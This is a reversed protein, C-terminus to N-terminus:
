AGETAEASSEGHRRRLFAEALAVLGYGHPIYHCKERVNYLGETVAHPAYKSLVWAFDLSNEALRRRVRDIDGLGQKHQVPIWEFSALGFAERIAEAREERREGGILVAQLGNTLARAKIVSPHAREPLPADIPTTVDEAATETSPDETEPSATLEEIRRRLHRLERGLVLDKHDTLLRALVDEHLANGKAASWASAVLTRMTADADSTAETRSELLERLSGYAADFKEIGEARTSCAAPRITTAGRVELQKAIELDLRAIEATWYLDSKDSNWDQALGDLYESSVDDKTARLKGFVNGHLRQAESRSLDSAFTYTFRKGDFAIKQIILRALPVPYLRAHTEIDLAEQELRSLWRGITERHPARTRAWEKLARLSESLAPESAIHFDHTVCGAFIEAVISSSSGAKELLRALLRVVEAGHLEQIADVAAESLSAIDAGPRTRASADMLKLFTPSHSADRDIDSSEVNTPPFERATSEEIEDPLGELPIPSADLGITPEPASEKSPRTEIRCSSETPIQVPSWSEFRVIAANALAILSDISSTEVEIEATLRRRKEILTELESRLDADEPHWPQALLSEGETITTSLGLSRRALDAKRREYLPLREAARKACGALIKRFVALDKDRLTADASPIGMNM